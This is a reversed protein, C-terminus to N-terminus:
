GSTTMPMRYNEGLFSIEFSEISTIKPESYIIPPRKKKEALEYKNNKEPASRIEITYQGFPTIRFNVNLKIRTPNM